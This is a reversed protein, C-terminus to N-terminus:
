FDPLAPEERGAGHSQREGIRRIEDLAAAMQFILASAIAMMIPTRLPYDTVSAMLILLLGISAARGTVIVGRASSNRWLRVSATALWILAVMLLILAPAGGELGLQLLDNHANNFYTTDLLALPEVQRFAPDFTGLGSGTPFYSKVLEIVTPLARARKDEFPDIAFLRDIAEARGFLIAAGFLMAVVAAFVALMIGQVRYRSTDLRNRWSWIVALGGVLGFGGLLLGTRSGTAILVIVLLGAVATATWRAATGVPDGRRLMGSSAILPLGMALLLAQHNRNTFIGPATGRSPLDYIANLGDSTTVLQVLGFLMSVVVVVLIVTLQWQRYRPELVMLGFLVAAPVTLSFLANATLDPAISIPRWPQEFGAAVAAEAFVSRGPLATWLQPPLPIMQVCALVILSGLLLAPLRITQPATSATRFTAMAIVLIATVRVPVQALQDYRSSGGFLILAGLFMLLAALFIHSGTIMDIPGSRRRREARARLRKPGISM